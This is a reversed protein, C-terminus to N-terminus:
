RIQHDKSVRIKNFCVTFRMKKISGKKATAQEKKLLGETGEESDNAQDGTKSEVAISWTCNM